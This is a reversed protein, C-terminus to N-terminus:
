FLASMLQGFLRELPVLTLALPAVPILAFMLLRIVTDRGIPVLRMTKVVDYGNRLDALSQIDGSGLLEKDGVSGSMWKRDFDVAYQQSLYGYANLGARKARHLTPAFPLLPVVVWLLTLAGLACLELRYQPLTMGGYLMGHAMVAAGIVGHALMLAWFGETVSGVFGLGGAGDPQTPALKLQLRSVGWLFRAWIALRFYWRFLIFQFLPLSILGAWWGALTVHRAGDQLASYWTSDALVAARHWNVAIGVSLVAILIVLEPYVSDRLRYARAVTADFGPRSAGAIIGREIFRSTLPRMWEHIVPEAALLLPVALLLRLHFSADRLFPIRVNSWGNGELCSLLLPPLWGILVAFMIRRGCLGLMGDALKLRCLLRYTPGGAALSFESLAANSGVSEVAEGTGSLPTTAIM